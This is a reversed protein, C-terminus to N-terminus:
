VMLLEEQWYNGKIYHKEVSDIFKKLKRYASKADSDREEREEYDFYGIDGFLYFEITSLAERAVNVDVTKPAVKEKLPRRTLGETNGIDNWHDVGNIFKGINIKDAM